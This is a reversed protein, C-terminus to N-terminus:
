TAVGVALLAAAVLGLAVLLPLIFRLWAGYSVSVMALSPLVLGTPAILSMLGFGFLYANVIQPGPVGAAAGLAGVIPMTVVAMGSSSAIFFTLVFFVLMVGIIFPEKPMGGVVRTSVDLLTDSIRGQDLVITVGRAIGIILSVGLLRGAGQVFTRVFHKEGGGAVVGAIVAAVLVLATMEPFWWGLRAVGIIMVVFTLGFVLLILRRRLTLAAGPLDGSTALAPVDRGNRAADAFSLAPNARVRNAYRVIYVLCLATALGLMLLRDTLGDTWNIGAADSAIITAFPNVTSAMLGVGAGIFVVALPVILDYGAAVFIPVLLPYFAITEEAMGYTTGGIAFLSTLIVILWTEHGRLLHVLRGIGATFAGSTSIVEIFGGIVLVFLVVDTADYTGLIPARVVALLGQRSAGLRTYTAPVAVPRRIAGSTFRDLPIRLGLRDLTETTGALTREGAPTELVFTSANRDYRLRTYKGAPLVWTAAVGLVIVLMLVAYPSPFSSGKTRRPRFILSGAGSWRGSRGTLDAPPTSMALLDRPLRRDGSEGRPAGNPNAGAPGDLPSVVSADSHACRMTM